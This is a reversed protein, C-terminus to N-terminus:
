LVILSCVTIHEVWGVEKVHQCKEYMLSSIDDEMLDGLYVRWSSNFCQPCMSASKLYTMWIEVDMHIGASTRLGLM